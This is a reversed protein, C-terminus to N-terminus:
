SPCPRPGLTKQSPSSRSKLAKLTCPKHKHMEQKQLARFNNSRVSLTLVQLTQPGQGQPKGFFCSGWVGSDGLNPQCNPLCQQCDLRITRGTLPKRAVDPTITNSGRSLWCRGAGSGKLDAPRCPKLSSIGDHPIRPFSSVRLRGFGILGQLRLGSVRFGQLRM